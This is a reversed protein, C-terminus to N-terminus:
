WVGPILRSRVRECYDAYGPLNGVLFHEEDILRWALVPLIPVVVLLTWYSGLALPICFLLLLAAAYLPHRVIAYPGTSVVPQGAEVQITSAAYSNQRLVRLFLWFSIAVAANAAIALWAPVASWHLRHDVGPLVMLLLFGSLILSMIIKQAPLREAAPGARMRRRILEPDHRLFYLGLATSSAAFVTGFVWAQWYRLTGAPAFLIAAFVPLSCATQVWLRRRLSTTDVSM